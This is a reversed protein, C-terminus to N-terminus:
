LTRGAIATGFRFRGGSGPFIGRGLAPIFVEDNSFDTNGGSEKLLEVGRLLFDEPLDAAWRLAIQPRIMKLSAQATM